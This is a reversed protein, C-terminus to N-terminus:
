LRKKSNSNPPNDYKRYIVYLINNGTIKSFERKLKIEIRFNGVDGNVAKENIILLNDETEWKGIWANGNQDWCSYNGNDELRFEMITSGHKLCWHGILESRDIPPKPSPVPAGIVGATLVLWIIIFRM